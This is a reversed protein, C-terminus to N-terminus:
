ERSSKEEEIADLVRSDAQLNEWFMVDSKNIVMLNEPQHIEEGLRIVSFQSDDTSTSNTNSNSNTDSTDQVDQRIYYVDDLRYHNGVSSLHGFYVQGNSLFVAQYADAPLLDAATNRAVCIKVGVLIIALAVIAYPVM